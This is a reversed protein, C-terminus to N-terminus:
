PMRTLNGIVISEHRAAWEVLADDACCAHLLSWFAAKWRRRQLEDDGSKMLEILHEAAERLCHIDLAYRLREIRTPQRNM